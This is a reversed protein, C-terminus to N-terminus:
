KKTKLKDLLKLQYDPLLKAAAIRGKIIRPSVGYSKAISKVSEGSEHLELIHCIQKWYNKSSM